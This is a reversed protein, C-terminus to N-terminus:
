TRIPSPAPSDMSQKALTAVITPVGQREVAYLHFLKSVVQAEDEHIM